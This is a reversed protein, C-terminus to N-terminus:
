ASKQQWCCQSCCRSCVSHLYLMIRLYPASLPRFPCCIRSPGRSDAWKPWYGAPRRAYGCWPYASSACGTCGPSRLFSPRATAYLYLCWLCCCCHLVPIHLRSYLTHAVFSLAPSTVWARPPAYFITLPDWVNSPQLKIKYKFTVTGQYKDRKFYSPIKTSGM